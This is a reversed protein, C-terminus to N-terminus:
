RTLQTKFLVGEKHNYKAVKPDHEPALPHLFQRHRTTPCGRDTAIGYAGDDALRLNTITGILKFEKTIVTQLRVRDGIKYLVKNNSNKKTIRREHNKIRKEILEEPKLEPNYSNPLLTRILRGLFRDNGSGSAEQSTTSNIGLVIDDLHLKTLRESSKKLSGKM